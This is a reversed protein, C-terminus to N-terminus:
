VCTGFLRVNCKLCKSMICTYKLDLAVNWAGKSKVSQINETNLARVEGTVHKTRMCVMLTCFAIGHMEVIVWCQYRLYLCYSEICKTFTM